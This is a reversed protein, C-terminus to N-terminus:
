RVTRGAGLWLGVMVVPLVLEVVMLATFFPHPAGISLRSLLRGVGGAFFVGLLWPVQGLAQPLKWAARLVLIGYAGWLAAYFRLESDMTAPWREGAPGGGGALAGFVREGMTATAEAGLVLISLAIAVASVGLLVLCIQLARLM